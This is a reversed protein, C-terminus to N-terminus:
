ERLNANPCLIQFKPGKEEGLSNHQTEMGKSEPLTCSSLLGLVFPLFSETLSGFSLDDTVENVTMTMTLIM